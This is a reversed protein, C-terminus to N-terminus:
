AYAPTLGALDRAESPILIGKRENKAGSELM